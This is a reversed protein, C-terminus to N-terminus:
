RGDFTDIFKSLEMTSDDEGRYIEEPWIELFDGCGVVVIKQRPQDSGFELKQRLSQNLVIRHQGDLKIKISNNCLLRVFKRKQVNDIGSDAMISSKYKEWILAPRVILFGDSHPTIYFDGNLVEAPNDKRFGAPMVMRFKDDLVAGHTGIFVCSEM